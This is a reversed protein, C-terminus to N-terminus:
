YSTFSEKEPSYTISSILIYKRNIFSNDENKEDSMEVKAQYLLLSPSALYDKVFNSTM